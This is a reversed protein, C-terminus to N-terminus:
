HCTDFCCLSFIVFMENEELEPFDICGFIPLVVTNTNVKFKYQTIKHKSYRTNHAKVTKYQVNECM